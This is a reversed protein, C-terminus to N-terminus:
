QASNRESVGPPAISPVELSSCMCFEQGPVLASKSGTGSDMAGCPPTMDKCADSFFVLNSSSFNIISIYYDSHFRSSIM